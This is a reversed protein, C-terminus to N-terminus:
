HLFIPAFQLLFPLQRGALISGPSGAADEGMDANGRSGVVTKKEM